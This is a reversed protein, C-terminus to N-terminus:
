DGLMKIFRQSGDSYGCDRYFAHAAERRANSTVEIRHIGHRRSLLEVERLLRRGIGRRAHDPAVVLATIRALETGHAISYLCHLAILACAQGDIEALLLHQRPDHSVVSIREAAEEHSCPYGLLDLLRAVDCADGTEAARIRTDGVARTPAASGM